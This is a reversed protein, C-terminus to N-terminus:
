VVLRLKAHDELVIVKGTMLDVPMSIHQHVVIWQDNRKQMCLTTRCWPMQIEEKLASHEVKTHCHLVVLEDTAFIKIDRRSIHMGDILFPKFQEWATKYENVGNQQTSIDFMMVDSVCLQAIDANNQGLVIQDWIEIQALVEEAVIQNGEVKVSM